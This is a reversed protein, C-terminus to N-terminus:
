PLSRLSEAERAACVQARCRRGCDLDLNGERHAASIDGSRSLSYVNHPMM